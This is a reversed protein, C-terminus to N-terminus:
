CIGNAIDRYLSPKRDDKITSINLTYDLLFLLYKELTSHAKRLWNTIEQSLNDDNIFETRGLLHQIAFLSTKLHNNFTCM